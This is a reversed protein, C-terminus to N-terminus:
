RGELAASEVPVPSRRLVSWGLACLGLALLVGVGTMGAASDPRAPNIEQLPAQAAFFGYVGALIGFASSRSLELSGGRTWRQFVWACAAFLAVLLAGTLWAPAGIGPFFYLLGTFMAAAGFGTGLSKRWAPASGSLLPPNRRPLWFAAAVLVLILLVCVASQAPTNSFKENGKQYFLLADLGFLLMAATLGPKGLWPTRRVRPFMVHLTLIATLKDKNEPKLLDRLTNKDIKGFASDTPAFVTKARTWGKRPSVWAARVRRPALCRGAGKGKPSSARGCPEAGDGIFEADGAVQELGNGGGGAGTGLLGDGGLRLFQAALGDEEEGVALEFDREGAEQGAFAAHSRHFDAGGVQVFAKDPGVEVEEGGTGDDGFPLVHFLLEVALARRGRVQGDAAEAERVRQFGFAVGGFPGDFEDERRDMEVFLGAVKGTEEGAGQAALRDQERLDLVLAAVAEVEVARGLCQARAALLHHLRQM